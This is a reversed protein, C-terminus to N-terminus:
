VADTLLAVLLIVSVGVVASLVAVTVTFPTATVLPAADPAIASVTPALVTVTSTVAASPVVVLDYVTVTVRAALLLASKAPKVGLLPLKLGAKAVPVM